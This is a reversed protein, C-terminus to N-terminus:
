SRRLNQIMASKLRLIEAEAYKDPDTKALHRTKPRRSPDKGRLINGLDRIILNKDEKGVLIGLSLLMSMFKRFEKLVPKTDETSLTDGDKLINRVKKGDIETNLIRDWIEIHKKDYEEVLKKSDETLRDDILIDTYSKKTRSSKKPVPVPVTDKDPLSTEYDIDAIGTIELKESVKIDPFVPMLAREDDKLEDASRGICKAATNLISRMMNIEDSILCHYVDKQVIDTM